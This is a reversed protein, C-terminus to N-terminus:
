CGGGPNIPFQDTRETAPFQILIGDCDWNAGRITIDEGQAGRRKLDHIRLGSFPLELRFEERAAELVEQASADPLLNNGSFGYARVRIRNIDEIAQTLNSNLMASSEARILMMQTISLVPINFSVDNFMSTVYFLSGDQDREEYLEARPGGFQTILDYFEQTVRLNPTNGQSNWNGRFGTNRNDINGQVEQSVIYYIYEPSTAPFVFHNVENEDFMYVGSNIVEDALEYAQDYEQMQFRVVAELAIAAGRTAFISSGSSLNNKAFELDSLVFSYVEGVSSRPIIPEFDLTSRIAVGPHSNDPSYNYAHAYVRCVDFHALARIFRAEAEIRNRDQPNPISVNDLNGLVTNARLVAIYWQGFVGPSDDDGNTFTNFITSNFTWISEYRGDATPRAVDDSLLNSLNQADGNYTNALVDYASILVQELDQQSQIAESPLLSGPPEQELLDNCSYSLLLIGVLISYHLINRKM